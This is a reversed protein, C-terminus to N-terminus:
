QAEEYALSCRCNIVNEASASADCPRDMLEGGVTFKEDMPIAPHNAMAQHAERTRDDMTPLWAKLMKVGLEQEAARVSQVSGYTAATNTETRAITAARFPTLQSVKRIRRAIQETGIGESVGDTIADRVDDRDTAAILKAKRLAQTAIWESILSTFLDDKREFRRSKVQRLSLDGFYPIVKRYHQSLMSQIARRNREDLWGPVTGAVAYGEAAARIYSNRALRASRSLALEFRDLALQWVRFQHRREPTM